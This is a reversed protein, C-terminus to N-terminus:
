KTSKSFTRRSFQSLIMGGNENSGSIGNKSINTGVMSVTLNPYRISASNLTLYETNNVPVVPTPLTYLLVHVFM